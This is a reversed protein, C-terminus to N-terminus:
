FLISPEIHTLLQSRFKYNAEEAKIAIIKDHVLDLSSGVVSCIWTSWM